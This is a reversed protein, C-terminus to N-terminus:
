SPHHHGDVVHPLGKGVYFVGGLSWPRSPSRCMNVCIQSWKYLYLLLTTPNIPMIIYIYIVYGYVMLLGM